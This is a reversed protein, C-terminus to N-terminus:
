NRADENTAIGDCGKYIRGCPESNAADPSDWAAMGEEAGAGEGLHDFDVAYAVANFANIREAGTDEWVGMTIVALKLKGPRHAM